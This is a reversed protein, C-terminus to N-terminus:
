TFGAHHDEVARAKRTAFGNDVKRIDERRKQHLASIAWSKLPFGIFALFNPTRM